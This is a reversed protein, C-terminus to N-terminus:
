EEDRKWPALPMVWSRKEGIKPRVEDEIVIVDGSGKRGFRADIERAEGADRLWFSENQAFKKRGAGVDIGEKLLNKDPKALCVEFLKEPM